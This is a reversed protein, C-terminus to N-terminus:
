IDTFELNLNIFRGDYNKFLNKEEKKGVLITKYLTIMKRLTVTM